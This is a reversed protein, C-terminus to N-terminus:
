LESGRDALEFQFIHFKIELANTLRSIGHRARSEWLAEVEAREANYRVNGAALVGSDIQYSM